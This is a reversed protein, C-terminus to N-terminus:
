SFAEMNCQLWLRNSGHSCPAMFSLLMRCPDPVMQLTRCFCRQSPMTMATTKLAFCSRLVQRLEEPATAPMITGSAIESAQQCLFAEVEYIDDVVRREKGVNWGLQNSSVFMRAQDLSRGNVAPKQKITHHTALATASLNSSKALSLYLVCVRSTSRKGVLPLSWEAGNQRTTSHKKLTRRFAPRYSRPTIYRLCPYM